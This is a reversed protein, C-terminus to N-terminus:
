GQAFSRPILNPIIRGNGKKAPFSGFAKITKSLPQYSGMSGISIMRQSLSILLHTKPLSTVSAEWSSSRSTLMPSTYIRAQM